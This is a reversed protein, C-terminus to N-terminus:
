QGFREFGLVAKHTTDDYVGTLRNHHDYRYVYSTGRDASYALTLNGTGSEGGHVLDVDSGPLIDIGFSGPTKSGGCGLDLIEPSSMAGLKRLRLNRDVDAWLSDTGLRRGQEPPGSSIIEFKQGNAGGQGYPTSGSVPIARVKVPDQPEGISERGEVPVGLVPLPTQAAVAGPLAAAMGAGAIIVKLGRARAQSAYEAVRDPTRHASMIRIEHPVGIKELTDATHKMTEWDSRSGMIIGVATIADTM